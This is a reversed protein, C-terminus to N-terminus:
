RWGYRSTWVVMMEERPGQVLGRMPRRGPDARTGKLPSGKLFLAIM